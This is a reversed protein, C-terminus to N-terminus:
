SYDSPTYILKVPWVQARHPLENPDERNAWFSTDMIFHTLVFTLNVMYVPPSVPPFKPIQPTGAGESRDEWPLM